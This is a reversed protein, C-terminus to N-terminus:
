NPKVIIKRGEVKFHINNFELIKLLDSLEADRAIGGNFHRAAPTGEYAIDVDYWRAVQRMIEEISEGRFSTQGNKWAIVDATNVQNITINNNGNRTVAQQGPKLNAQESNRTVRIIGEVLTTRIVPEDDYANINFSTGIDEIVQGKVKVSFPRAADHKVDFYVQGTIEVMRDKGTFAVPYRISSGADLIFHTGDALVAEYRGGRPTSMTNYQLEAAPGAAQGAHYAIRGDATKNITINGQTAITGNQAGTLIVQQGNGLTLIAKNGGPKIPAVTTKVVQQQAQPKHLLLFSGVSVALIISAAAAIRPWLRRVKVPEAIQEHIRNLLRHAAEDESRAYTDPVTIPQDNNENLWLEFEAREEPTITGNKYRHALEQIRQQQEDM